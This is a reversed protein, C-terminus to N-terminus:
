KNQQDHLIWSPERYKNFKSNRPCEDTLRPKRGELTPCLGRPFAQYAMPPPDTIQVYKPHDGLVKAVQPLALKNSFVRISPFISPLLLLPRCLILHNIADCVWHLNTQAFELLCHLAPFGPTSCDMPDCLRVRNLFRVVVRQRSTM